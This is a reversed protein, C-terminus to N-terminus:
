WTPDSEAGRSHTLRTPETGDSNMVYLERNGDRNSIFAIKTGDPSWDPSYNIGPGDTLRTVETGDSNMVFIHSKRTFVISSGDPSWHPDRESRRCTNTLNTVDSSDPTVVLIDGRYLCSRGYSRSRTFVIGTGDPSWEPSRDERGSSRTLRKPSSGDANMTWLQPLDRDKVFVIASGDPAWSPEYNISGDTLESRGSGDANVSFIANDTDVRYRTFLLVADTPSWTAEYGNEVLLRRDTGDANVLYVDFSRDYAVMAGDPSLEPNHGEGRQQSVQTVETGDSRITFIRSRGNSFREFGIRPESSPGAAAQCGFAILGLAAMVGAFRRMGEMKECFHLYRGYVTLYYM